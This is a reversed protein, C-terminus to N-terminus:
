KSLKDINANLVELYKEPMSRAYLFAENTVNAEKKGNKLLVTKGSINMKKALVEGEAKDMNISTFPIGKAEAAKQTQTEIAHCTVCRATNHFYYIELGAKDAASLAFASFLGAILLFLKLNKM